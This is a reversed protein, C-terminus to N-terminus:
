IVPPLELRYKIFGAPMMKPGLALRLTGASKVAVVAVLILKPLLM